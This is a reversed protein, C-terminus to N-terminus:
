QPAHVKLFERDARRDFFFWRRGIRIFYANVERTVNKKRPYVKRVHETYSVQTDLFTRPGPKALCCCCWRPLKLMLTRVTVRVPRAGQPNPPLPTDPSPQGHSSNASRKRPDMDKPREGGCAPCSFLHTSATHGCACTWTDHTM